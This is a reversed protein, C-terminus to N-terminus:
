LLKAFLTYRRMVSGYRASINQSQGPEHMLAHIVCRHGLERAKAHLDATLYSGLGAYARGSKAVLTKIIATDVTEGRRAQLWDPVAFILGILEGDIEALRILDPRLYSRLPRYQELFAPLSVPVYLLSKQFGSLVLPYIRELELEFQDMRLSRVQVGTHRLRASAMEAHRDRQDLDPALRSQYAALAAFGAEEWHRPWERPHQPELFFPARTGSETVFRYTHWTNRDMPGVALTCGHKTLERCAHQLMAGALGGSSATYHGILGLRHDGHKPTDKWWLSCRGALRGDADLWAWHADPADRQLIDPAYPWFLGSGGLGNLKEPCDILIPKGM